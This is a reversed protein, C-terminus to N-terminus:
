EKRSPIGQFCTCSSDLSGVFGLNEQTQATYIFKDKRRVVQQSYIEMQCYICVLNLLSNWSYPTVYATKQLDAEIHLHTASLPNKYAYAYNTLMTTHPCLPLTSSQLDVRQPISGASRAHNM